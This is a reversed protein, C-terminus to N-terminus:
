FSHRLGVEVGRSKQQTAPLAYGNISAVTYNASGSNNIDAYTGYVATRRSLNYVAGLAFQKADRGNLTGYGKAQNYSAKLQVAGLPVTAGVTFHRDKAAQYRQEQGSIGLKVVGFDYSGSVMGLKVDDTTVTTTSYVANVDLPGSRFGARGGKYKRGAVGEGAATALQGYFGGLGGPTFYSIMNDSRTRTDIGGLVAYTTSADGVGVLGFPDVEALATWAPTQDRGLRVEGADKSILSVTSRRHWFRSANTTGTDGVLQSELWFGASLGGGLDEVGRFGLRSSSNGDNALQQQTVSGNRVERAAMDVVGFVTVTSQAMAASAMASLVLGTALIKKMDIEL